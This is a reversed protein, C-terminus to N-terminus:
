QYKQAPTDSGATTILTIGCQDLMTMVSQVQETEYDEMYEAFDDWEEVLVVVSCLTNSTGYIRSEFESTLRPYTVAFPFNVLTM